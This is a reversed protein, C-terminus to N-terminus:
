TNNTDEILKDWDINKDEDEERLERLLNDVISAENFIPLLNYEMIDILEKQKSIITKLRLIEENIESM